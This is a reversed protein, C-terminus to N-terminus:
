ALPIEAMFSLHFKNTNGFRPTITAGSNQYYSGSTLVVMTIYPLNNNSNPYYYCNMHDSGNTSVTFDGYGVRFGRGGDIDLSDKNNNLLPSVYNTSPLPVRYTYVSSGAGSTGGTPTYYTFSYYLIKGVISYQAVVKSGSVRGATPPPTVINGVTSGSSLTCEVLYGFDPSAFSADTNIRNIVTTWPVFTFPQRTIETTSSNYNLIHNLITGGSADTALQVVNRIPAIICTSATTQAISAGTANIQISNLAQGSNGANFGIAISNGGQTTLGANTGIAISNGGQTTSGAYDGIAIGGIRQTTLGANFGIAIANGGQTTQGANTGIAIANGGQTTEAARNGIAVSNTRQNSSGARNGIAVASSSQSSEGSSVGISIAEAGQNTIASNLGIAIGRNGQNTQGANQGIALAEGVQNTQGANRGIAIANWGQSTNGAYDGMAIAFNGQSSTIGASNGIMISGSGQTITGAILNGVAISGNISIKLSKSQINEIVRGLDLGGIGVIFNTTQSM